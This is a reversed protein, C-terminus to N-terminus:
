PLILSTAGVLIAFVALYGVVLLVLGVLYYKFRMTNAFAASLVVIIGLLWLLPSWLVATSGMRTPTVPSLLNGLVWFALALVIMILGLLAIPMTRKNTM